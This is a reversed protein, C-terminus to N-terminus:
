IILCLKSITKKFKLFFPKSINFMRGSVFHGTILKFTIRAQTYYGSSGVVDTSM